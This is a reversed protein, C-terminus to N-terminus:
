GKEEISQPFQLRKIEELVEELTAFQKELLEGNKANAADMRKFDAKTYKCHPANPPRAIAVRLTYCDRYQRITFIDFHVINSM